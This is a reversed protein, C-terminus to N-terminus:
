SCGLPFAAVLLLSLSVHHGQVRTGAGVGALREQKGQSALM